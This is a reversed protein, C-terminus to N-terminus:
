KLEGTLENVRRLARMRASRSKPNAEVEAESPRLPKKMLEEFDGTKALARFAGKAAGDEGSHYALTVLVGGPALRFAIERVADELGETEANIRVRVGQFTRTAPHIRKERMAAPIAAMVCDVLDGTRELPQTKRREVIVQAIRRAWREGGEIFIANEIERLSARNLWASASEGRSRDMRMDLPGDRLFSIGREADEIQANNLGMDILIGDARVSGMQDLVAPVDRYDRNVFTFEVGQIDGTRKRAEDLMAADWDFGILRGGPAIREAMRRAHGALGITADVVTAGPTLPMAALVEEVMVSVHTMATM